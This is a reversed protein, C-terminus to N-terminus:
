RWLYAYSALAGQAKALLRTAAPGRPITDSALREVIREPTTPLGSVPDRYRPYDILVAHTFADLSPRATRRAPIHGRDETLGWGAYFPAGLTTVHVGRLVAEFGLTSTMTWVEDAWDMLALPDAHHAVLDAATDADIAGPRLGAEVDPHPKYVIRADPNAARAAQLLAANMAVDGTGLRISADDEVQGPVLIRKGGTPLAPVSMELNYKTIQAGILRARLRAARDLAAPHLASARDVHGELDSPGTPDFYIGAHDTILSLPRVLEAGLGRSRLFGDECTAGAGGPGWTMHPRDPTPPSFRVPKVDGYFANVHRRKWLRMNGATWGHRDERYARAQASLQHIIQEVDCRMGTTPDVWIPTRILAAETLAETSLTRTRRPFKQVDETLGWGAYFPTGFVHPRHGALIAEYGLGSSMVYVAHAATLLRWPSVAETLLTTRDDLDSADYHGRRHGRQTEPHTKLVIRRDPHAARAAALMARFADRDAGSARLSADGATQDIVLVFGPDPLAANPDHANYKSLDARRLADIVARARDPQDFTGTQLLTELDSPRTADFHVGSHDILLGHPTALKGGDRGPLVSRLWADEIRVVQAGTRRAVALGRHATPSAGWIGIHEGRSPWGIRVDYGAASLMRRTGSQTLFGGNFVYLPTRGDTPASM